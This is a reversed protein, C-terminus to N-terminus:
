QLTARYAEFQEYFDEITLGFAQEFAAEASTAPPLVRYYDFLAPEGAREALWEVALFGLSPIAGPHDVALDQLPSRTIRAVNVERRRYEALDLRGAHAQYASTAYKVLGDSVWVPARSATSFVIDSVMRLVEQPALEGVIAGVYIYDMTPGHCRDLTIVARGSEPSGTCSIHGVDPLARTASEANRAVYLTFETAEAEFRDAFFQRVNEFETRIETATDAPVAGVFELLPEELDDTLHPHPPFTESRYAEFQEYFDEIKLGFASEFAAEVSTSSPLLRYYEFVAPDGARNALWEVALFGLAEVQSRAANSASITEMSSLPRLAPAVAFASSSQFRTRVGGSAAELYEHRTYLETGIQLWMPGRRTHGEEVAPLSHWPALQALAAQLLNRHLIDPFAEFCRLTLMLVAASSNVHSCSSEGSRLWVGGGLPPAMHRFWQKNTAVFFTYEFPDAGFRGILMKYMGASEASMASRTDLPVDGLFVTVPGIAESTLHPLPPFAEARVTAFAAYFEDVSIGFATEFTGRWDRSTRMLRLYEFVAPNGAREALWEVAFFGLAVESFNTAGDRSETVEFYSLPLSTRRAGTEMNSRQRIARDGTEERYSTLAYERTGQVLWGPGRPDLRPAGRWNGGKGPIEILLKRLYEYNFTDEPPGLCQLARIDIGQHTWACVGDQPEEGVLRLYETRIVELNAAIYRPEGRTAVAFGEAFFRRVNEYEGLIARRDETPVDGLFVFPPEASGPQWWNVPQSVEIWLAEGGSLSADGFRYPEYDQRSPDWRWARAEADDPPSVAGDAVIGVLNLGAHLPLVVHEDSVARTWSVPADGGLLLWMGMGPTLTPLDAQNYRRARRYEKAEADWVSVRRLQPLLEFLESTPTAPGVWGVMDWGPHLVTTITEAEATENSDESASAQTPALGTAFVLAALVALLAPRTRTLSLADGRDSGCFVSAAGELNGGPLTRPPQPTDEIM